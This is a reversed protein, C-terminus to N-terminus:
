YDYDENGAEDNNTQTSTPGVAAATTAAVTNTNVIPWVGSVGKADGRETDSGFYYLPWGKYTIQSRGHVTIKGFDSKDFVSPVEDLDLSIIPWTANNSFDQRTYNNTDKKDNAFLYITRGTASTMYFTLEDSGSLKAQGYMVSYNPKAVFWNNGVKDGKTDGAVDDSAFYYLPWGKYTTQKDGDTRTITGFDSVNLGEDLKLDNTYFVPWAAKCGNTCESIEKTDKSFFYLSMGKDDTLISGHTTNSALKVTSQENDQGSGSDVQDTNTETATEINSDDNSCSVLLTISTFLLLVSKKM